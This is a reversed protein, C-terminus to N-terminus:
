GLVELRIRGGPVALTFRMVLDAVDIRRSELVQGGSLLNYLSEDHEPTGSRASIDFRGAVSSPVFLTLNGGNVAIEGLTDEPQSFLPDYSPLTVVVDGSSTNINLRELSLGGLNLTVSGSGGNVQLDVPVDPPIQLSLTARGIDNLGPFGETLTEVLVLDATDDTNESYRSELANAAAGAYQGSIGGTRDLGTILEIDTALTTINVRLLTVGESVSEAIAAQTESSLRGARGNYATLAIGGVLAGSIVLAILGSAPVRDRLIFAIGILVLLIPLGRNILDILGAPLLNFQVAALLAAGALVILGALGNTRRQVRM